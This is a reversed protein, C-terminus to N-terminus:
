AESDSDNSDSKAKRGKGRTTTAGLSNRMNTDALLNQMKYYDVVSINGQLFANSIAKPVESEASLLKARMEQTKARMEQEAAIAMSKREEARARAVQVDAEAQRARLKAGVNEGVDIDAIDISIITYATNLDLNKDLVVKSIRDPNELVEEHTEASGVTTVIGEGVRAIITDSGAGGILKDLNYKVTIKAKVILEIGNKAVARIAPTEIVMPEVSNRVAKLIDRNALDVAKAYEVSLPIRAGHATILADVVREVNGGALYHTELDDISVAVGAKKANIYNDVLMGIDVHRLRMGILRGASVHAGSVLSKIWINIPVFGIFIALAILVVILLILWVYMSTDALLLQIM